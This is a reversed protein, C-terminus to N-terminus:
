NAERCVPDLENIDVGVVLGSLQFAVFLLGVLLASYKKTGGDVGGCRALVVSCHCLFLTVKGPAIYYGVSSFKYGGLAFVPPTVERM